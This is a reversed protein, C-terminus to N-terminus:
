KISESIFPRFVPSKHDFFPKSNGDSGVLIPDIVEIKKVNNPTRTIQTKVGTKLLISKTNARLNKSLLCFLPKLNTM